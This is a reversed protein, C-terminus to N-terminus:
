TLGDDSTHDSKTEELLGFALKIIDETECNSLEHFSAKLGKNDLALKGGGDVVGTDQDTSSVDGNALLHDVDRGVEHPCRRLLVDMVSGGAGNLSAFGAALLSLSCSSAGTTTVFSCRGLELSPM